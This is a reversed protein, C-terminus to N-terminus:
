MVTLFTLTTDRANPVQSMSDLRAQDNSFGDSITIYCSLAMLSPLTVLYPYYWALLVETPVLVLTLLMELAINCINILFSGCMFALSHFLERYIVIEIYDIYASITGSVLAAYVLPFYQLFCSDTGVYSQIASVTSAIYNVEANICQNDSEPFM